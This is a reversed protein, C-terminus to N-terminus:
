AATAERVEALLEVDGDLAQGLKIRLAAAAVKKQFWKHRLKAKTTPVPLLEPNARVMRRMKKFTSGLAPSWNPDFAAENKTIVRPADGKKKRNKLKRRDHPVNISPPEPRLAPLAAGSMSLAATAAAAILAM